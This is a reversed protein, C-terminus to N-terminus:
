GDILSKLHPRALMMSAIIISHNIKLDFIMQYAEKIPVIKVSIDEFADLEQEAVKECDLALYTHMWNSQMAPNPRHKGVYIYKKGAYGTEELLERAAAAEYNEDDLLDSTGGPIEFAVEGSAHRYQEVLVLENQPTIAIM